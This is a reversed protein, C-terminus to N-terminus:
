VWASALAGVVFLAPGLGWALPRVRLPNEGALALVALAGGGVIAETGLTTLAAGELGLRPVAWANGVVNFLLAFGAIGLVARTHGLAIVATLLPAGLYVAAMAALLWGLAPAAAVFEEGFVLRLLPERFGLLLGAALGGGAALPQGLRAVADALEGDRRRRVLWPLATTTAFASVILLFTLLRVAAGYHGVAATGVLGRVFLHDVHFYAQQAVAALGLPLAAAFFGRTRDTDAHAAPLRAGAAFHLAVNPVATGLATAILLPGATRVGQAVLGLVLVLRLSAGLARLLVPTGWRIENRFVVSSLELPHTLLYLAAVTILLPQSEGAVHAAVAVALTATAATALRVRRGAGLVARLAGPADATREVAVAGTGLDVLGDLVAFTALWFALRGFEVGPLVRALVVLAIATCIAGWKRGIVQLGTGAWVRRPVAATATSPSPSSSM